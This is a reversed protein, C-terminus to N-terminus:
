YKYFGENTKIGLKGEEVLKVLTPSPTYHDGFERELTRISALSVDLGVFDTLTFPGVPFNAGLQLAKDIDEMSAIGDDYLKMAEVM